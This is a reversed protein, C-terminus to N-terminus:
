FYNRMLETSWWPERVAGRPAFGPLYPKLDLVPTDDIADLGRVTVTLGDVAVLECTTVGLHNPRNPGRQALIGVEPWDPNLRPHQSGRCVSTARDFLYVVELHSYDALGLTATPEYVKPNLEIVSSVSGWDDDTVERRPSRVVGVQHIDVM